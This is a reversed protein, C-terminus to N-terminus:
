NGLMKESCYSAMVKGSYALSVSWFLAFVIIEIVDSTAFLSFSEGLLIVANSIVGLVFVLAFVSAFRNTTMEWSRRFAQKVTGKELAMAQVVFLLKVYVYILTVGLFLLAIEGALPVVATAVLFLWFLVLFAIFMVELFLVLAIIRGAASLTESLAKGMSAKSESMLREHAAYFYNLGSFVIGTLTVFVMIALLDFWYISIFQFPFAQIPADPVVGLFVINVVISILQQSFIFVLGGLIAITALGPLLLFPNGIIQKAGNVFSKIM